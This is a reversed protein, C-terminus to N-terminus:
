THALNQHGVVALSNFVVTPIGANLGSQTYFVLKGDANQVRAMAYGAHADTLTLFPQYGVTQIGDQAHIEVASPPPQGAPAALSNFVVTPAGANIATQTYFVLEGDANQVRAQMNNNNTDTLTVFPQF